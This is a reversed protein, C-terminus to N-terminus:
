VVVQEVAYDFHIVGGYGVWADVAYASVSAAAPSALRQMRKMM